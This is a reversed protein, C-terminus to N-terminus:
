SESTPDTKWRRDWKAVSDSTPAMSCFNWLRFHFFPM